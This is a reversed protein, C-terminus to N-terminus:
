GEKKEVSDDGGADIGAGKCLSVFYDFDLVALRRKRGPKRLVLVPIKKKKDAYRKLEDYWVDVRWAKRLKSDIVFLNHEVDEKTDTGKQLARKSNMEKAIKLEERKWNSMVEQVM